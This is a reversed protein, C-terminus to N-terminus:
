LNADLWDSIAELATEDFTIEITAYEAMGGTRAPQFLHNLGDLVIVQSDPHSLAEEMAAVNESPAVQKDLEGFLALVPGEYAELAPVPDYDMVWKMWPSATFRARSEAMESPLGADEYLRITKELVTDLDEDARLLELAQELADAAANAQAETGGDALVLERSQFVAVEALTASPGALLVMAAPAEIPAALPAIIGGESHGVYATRVADVRPDSKLFALAAAADMAFDETTALSHDGTSEAVGRDDYRLVAYGKRTLDDSIILFPKHNLLEENRDQPGSGTILVVAPFPGEGEPLTLEGALTVGDAGGPFSVEEIVYPRETPEQPRNMEIEAVGRTLKIPLPLGQMWAAELTDGEGPEASFEAGVVPFSAKFAGDEIRANEGPIGMAGQLPSDLSIALEGAEDAEIHFVLPLSPGGPVELTGSWDGVISATTIGDRSVDPAAPTKEGMDASVADGQPAEQESDGGGCAGLIALMAAVALARPRFPM